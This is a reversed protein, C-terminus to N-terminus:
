EIASALIAQVPCDAAAQAVAEDDGVAPHGDRVVAIDDEGLDFVDPAAAVCNGYGSCAHRDISVHLTM